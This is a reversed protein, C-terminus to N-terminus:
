ALDFLHEFLYILQYILEQRKVDGVPSARRLPPHHGRGGRASQKRNLSGGDQEERGGAGLDGQGFVLWELFRGRPCGPNCSVSLSPGEM